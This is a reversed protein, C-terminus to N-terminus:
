VAFQFLGLEARRANFAALERRAEDMDRGLPLGEIMPNGTGTLCVWYSGSLGTVWKWALKANKM